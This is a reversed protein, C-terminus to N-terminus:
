GPEGTRYAATQLDFLEAFIGSGEILDQQAGVEAIRGNDLVVILDALHVSSLRHTILVTVGNASGQIDGRTYQRVLAVESEPDIASTPEDLVRLLPDRRMASRALALRQWQGGSLDVAGAFGKGLRTELGRPLSDIMREADVRHLAAHVAQIDQRDDLLGIGVADTVPLKYRVADQFVATVRTRWADPAIDTLRQGDILIEGATPPYLGCLLKVLTSKGAGNEGVLAIVSGAPLTLNIDRLTPTAAGPYAFTVGRLEIGRHLSAPPSGHAIHAQEQGSYETLWMLHAVVRLTGAMGRAQGAVGQALGELQVSLLLVLAADGVSGHGHIARNMIFTLIGGYALGYALGTALRLALGRAAARETERRAEARLTLIRDLLTAALGSVRVETAYRPAAAIEELQGALRTKAQSKETATLIGRAGRGSAWVRLGALVLLLLVLPHVTTLVALVAIGSVLMNLGDVVFTVSNQLEGLNGRIMSIRDALDPREHHAIHPVATTLTLVRQQIYSDMRENLTAWLATGAVEFLLTACTAAILLAFALSTSGDGTVADVLVKVGFAQGLAALAQAVMLASQTTAMLPAARFPLALM